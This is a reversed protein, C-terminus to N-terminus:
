KKLTKAFAIVDAVGVLLYLLTGVATAVGLRRRQAPARHLAMAATGFLLVVTVGLLVPLGFQAVLMLPELWSM